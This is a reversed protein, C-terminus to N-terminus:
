VLVGKQSTIVRPFNSTGRDESAKHTAKAGSTDAAASTFAVGVQQARCQPCLIESNLAQPKTSLM